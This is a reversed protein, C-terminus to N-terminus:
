LKLFKLHRKLYPFQNQIFVIIDIFVKPKFLIVLTIYFLSTIVMKLLFSIFIYFDFGIISFLFLTAISSLLSLVLIPLIPLILEILKLKILKGSFYMQAFWDIVMGISAAVAIAFIGNKLNFVILIITIIKTILNLKFQIDTRGQSLFISGPFFISVPLSAIAFISLLPTMESWKQGLFGLVFDNAFFSIPIMIPFIIFASLKTLLICSKKIKVHDNQIISFSSIAVSVINSKIAKSPLFLFSYAKSYYGLDVKGLFKGILINDFRRIWYGLSRSGFHFVSFKFLDKLAWKKMTFNPVWNNKTWYWLSVIAIRSINQLVLAWVGFGFFALIVGFVGGLIGSLIRALSITKFEMNKKLMAFHVMSGANILYSVAMVPM